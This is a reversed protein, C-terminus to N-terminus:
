QQKLGQSVNGGVLRAIFDLGGGAALPVVFLVPRTPYGQAWAAAPAAIAAGCFRLFQRRPLHMLLVGPTNPATRDSPLDRRFLRRHQATAGAATPEASPLADRAHM